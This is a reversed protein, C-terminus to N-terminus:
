LAEVLTQFLAQSHRTAPWAILITNGWRYWHAYPVRPTRSTGRVVIVELDEKEYSAIPQGYRTDFPFTLV